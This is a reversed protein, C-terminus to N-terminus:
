SIFSQHFQGWCKCGNRWGFMLIGRWWREGEWFVSALNGSFVWDMIVVSQLDRKSRMLLCAGGLQWSLLVCNCALNILSCRRLPMWILHTGDCACIASANVLIMSALMRLSHRARPRHLRWSLSCIRRERESERARRCHSRFMDWSEVPTSKICPFALDDMYSLGSWTSAIM